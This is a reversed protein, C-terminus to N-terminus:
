WNVVAQNFIDETLEQIILDIADNEVQSLSLNSDYDYFRSFNRSFDNGPEFENFFNVRVTITLRNMAARDDGTIAIPETRYNTISGEFHLHGVGEVMRLNTQRLFKDQLGETFRQSLTPQVLPADNPFYSVSITEAQPPISAGTFSYVGCACVIAGIITSIFFLKIRNM